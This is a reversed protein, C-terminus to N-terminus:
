VQIEPNRSPAEINVGYGYWALAQSIYRINVKRSMTQSNLEKLTGQRNLPSFFSFRHLLRSLSHNSYKHVNM